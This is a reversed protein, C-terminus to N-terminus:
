KTLVDDIIKILGAFRPADIEGLEHRVGRLCIKYLEIRMETDALKDLNKGTERLYVENLRNVTGALEHLDSNM